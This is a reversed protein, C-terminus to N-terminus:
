ARSMVYNIDTIVFQVSLKTRRQLATEKEGTMKNAYIRRIHTLSLSLFCRSAITAATHLKLAVSMILIVCLTFCLHQVYISEEPGAM